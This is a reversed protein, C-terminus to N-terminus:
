LTRDEQIYLQTTWQFDVLKELFMDGGDEPNFLTGLFFDAHVLCFASSQM